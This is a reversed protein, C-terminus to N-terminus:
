SAKPRLLAEHNRGGTAEIEGWLWDPCIDFGNPWTPACDKLFVLAFYAPDRLPEGMPGTEAILASFNHEGSTGDSFTTHLRHEGLYKLNTVKIMTSTGSPLVGV